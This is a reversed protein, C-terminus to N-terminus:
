DPDVESAMRYAAVCETDKNCEHCLIILSTQKSIYQMIMNNIVEKQPGDQIIGPLDVLDLDAQEPGEILM